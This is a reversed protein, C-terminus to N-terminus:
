TKGRAAPAQGAGVPIKRPNGEIRRRSGGAPRRTEIKEGGIGRRKGKEKRETVDWSIGMIGVIEGSDNKIPYKAVKEIRERGDHFCREEKEEPDGKGLFVRDDNLRQEAVEFPYLDHDTKGPIEPPTVGFLRAYNANAFLYILNKDKLFVKQPLHAVITQYKDLAAQLKGALERYHAESAKLQKIQEPYSILESIFKEISTFKDVGNEEEEM